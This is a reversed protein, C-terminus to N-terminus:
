DEGDEDPEERIIVLKAAAPSGAAARYAEVARHARPAIIIGHDAPHYSEGVIGASAIGMERVAARTEADANHALLFLAQECQGSVMAMTISAIGIPFVYRGCTTLDRWATVLAASKETETAGTWATAGLRDAFWTDAEAVTCFSNVGKDVAM